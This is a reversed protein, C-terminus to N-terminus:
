RPELGKLFLDMLAAVSDEMPRHEDSAIQQEISIIVAGLIGAAILAPLLWPKAGFPGEFFRVTAVFHGWGGRLWLSGRGSSTRGAVAVVHAAYAAAFGAIGVLWPWAERWRGGRPLLLTSALALLMPYILIERFLAGLLCAMVAAWLLGRSDRVVSTVLLAVGLLAFPIAWADVFTVYTTTALYLFAPAVVIPALVAVGPRTLETALLFSSVVALAALPLFALPLDQARAVARWLYYVTPLRYGVV